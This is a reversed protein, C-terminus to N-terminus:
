PSTRSAQHEGVEYIPVINPHDLQAAAEAEARFRRAADPREVQAPAIMKLAVIRGLSIQRARFVVGMGGVAIKELLEYDGLARPSQVPSTSDPVEGEAELDEEALM